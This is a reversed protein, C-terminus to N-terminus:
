PAPVASRIAAEVVATAMVRVLNLSAEQQGTAAVVVADGDGSLHAPVLARAFGDHASQAVLHCEVKSLAANTVVVGITTNEVTGADDVFPVLEPLEFEGALIAANTTGDDIDGSANVAMLAAVTVAGSHAM